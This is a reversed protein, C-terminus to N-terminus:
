FSVVVFPLRSLLKLAVSVIQLASLIHPVRYCLSFGAYSPLSDVATHNVVNKKLQLRIFECNVATRSM